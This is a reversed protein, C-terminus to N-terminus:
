RYSQLHRVTNWMEEGHVQDLLRLVQRLLEGLEQVRFQRSIVIGAHESGADHWRRALSLFDDRNYTLLTWSRQTAYALQEADSLGVMGESLTSAAEYGRERLLVALRDTVDEDTYLAIFLRERGPTM